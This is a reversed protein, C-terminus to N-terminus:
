PKVWSGGSLIGTAWRSLRSRDIKSNHRIDTPLGPVVLVAAVPSGVAARVAAALPAAARQVRRASPVTEIVAVQQQTGLPGVGVFAARAVDPLTEIRQEPGVPTVVGTAAVIIHPM